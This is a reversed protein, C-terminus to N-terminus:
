LTPESAPRDVGSFARGSKVPIRMAAFYEPTVGYREVCPDDAPTPSPRGQIHFGSCDGNGSLPIQSAAAVAEVGPLTRLRALVQQIAAFVQENKAYAAGVFSVQMTLVRDPNFGPDVGVLREVSKIMLGAGALLVVALA